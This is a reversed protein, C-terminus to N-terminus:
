ETTQGPELTVELVHGTIDSEDTQLLKIIVLPIRIRGEKSMKAFFFQWGIQTNIDNVGVNLLQNTEVKFEWRILKPVQIRSGKELVNKFAIKEIIPM